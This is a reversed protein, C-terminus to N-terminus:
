APNRCCGVTLSHRLHIEVTVAYTLTPQLFTQIDNLRGIAAHALHQFLILSVARLWAGKGLYRIVVVICDFIHLTQVMAPHFCVSHGKDDYNIRLIFFIFFVFVNEM